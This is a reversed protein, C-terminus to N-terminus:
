AVAVLQPRTDDVRVLVYGTAQLTANRRNEMYVMWQYTRNFALSHALITVASKPSVTQSVYQWPATGSGIFSLAQQLSRVLLFLTWRVRNIPCARLISLIWERIM